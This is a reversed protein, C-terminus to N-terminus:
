RLSPGQKGRSYRYICSSPSYTWSRASGNCRYDIPVSSFRKTRSVATEWERERLLSASQRCSTISMDRPQKWIIHQRKEQPAGHHYIEMLEFSRRRALHDHDPPPTGSPDTPGLGAKTWIIKNSARGNGSSVLQGGSPASNSSKRRQNWRQPQVRYDATCTQLQHMPGFRVPSIRTELYGGRKIAFASRSWSEENGEGRHIQYTSLVRESRSLTVVGNGPCTALSVPYLQLKSERKAGQCARRVAKGFITDKTDAKLKRCATNTETQAERSSGRLYKTGRECCWSSQLGCSSLFLNNKLETWVIGM